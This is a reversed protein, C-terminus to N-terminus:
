FHFVSFQMQTLFRPSNQICTSPKVSRKAKSAKPSEQFLRSPIELSREHLKPSDELL